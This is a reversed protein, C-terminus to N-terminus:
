LKKLPAVRKALKKIGIEPFVVTILNEDQSVVVGNGFDPHSVREGDQLGDIQNNKKENFADEISSHLYDEALSVQEILTQDIEDLFRSRVSIQTAGYINRRSTFIMYAREKARTIGVYCLRREEEMELENFTARSHPILGEEVGVIFVNKFELGKASHLTMMPVVDKAELDRDSQSILAVEELFSELGDGEQSEYKGAVTLLEQINEHRAQGEEGEKSLMLEYGSDQYTKQITQVVGHNKSYDALRMILKGFEKLIQTKVANVPSNKQDLNILAGLLAIKKTDAWDFIKEITQKGIGRKPINIAREFSVRDAPNKILYIYALIDKIEKRQYFKLGGIIKYPISERMFAEELARSQANTRYLVAFDDYRTGKKQYAEKIEKAVYEAEHVEDGAEVVFIKDGASNETWLKKKKQNINKSIVCHAAELINRSSRYNQELLVVKADPYDKEFNLINRIDAERWGYIAQFDDGVVCINRHKEALLKLLIYQAHNTDQYEDVMIYKFINQYKELTLPHQRFIKVTLLILDDFDVASAKKLEASYKRYCQAVLDQFYEDAKVSFNEADVLGNKSSSIANLIAKPKIQDQSIGLSSMVRKMLALQDTEDYIIFNKNYGIKEIEQRLIRVCISHFTGVYPLSASYPPIGIPLGLLEKIRHLMEGAAKNTFTVALINKPHIKKEKILFVVRFTLARTKGSGAGALILVPGETQLVAETQKDNLQELLFSM